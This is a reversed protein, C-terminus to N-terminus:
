GKMEPRPAQRRHGGPDGWRRLGPQVPGLAALTRELIEAPTGSAQVTVLKGTRGYYDTLPRTSAQYAQMRERVAEPRDDERQVLGGGFQDCVGAAAPPRTSVHYVAKCRPCARRGSLRAVIEETPLEYDLLQM